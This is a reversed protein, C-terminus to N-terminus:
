NNEEVKPLVVIGLFEQGVNVPTGSLFVLAVSAM